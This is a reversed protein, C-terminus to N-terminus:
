SPALERSNYARETVWAQPDITPAEQDPMHLIHNLRVRFDAREEDYLHNIVELMSWSNEDPKWRAQEDSIGMVMRRITEANAAMQALYSYRNM